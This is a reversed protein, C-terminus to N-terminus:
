AIRNLLLRGSRNVRREEYTNTYAVCVQNGAANTGYRACVRVPVRELVSMWYSSRNLPNARDVSVFVDACKYRIFLSSRSQDEYRCPGPTMNVEITDRTITLIGELTVAAAGSRDSGGVRELFRFTGLQSDALERPRPTSAGCATLVAVFLPMMAPRARLLM